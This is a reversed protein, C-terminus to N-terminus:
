MTRVYYRPFFLDRKLICCNKKLAVVLMDVKGTAFRSHLLMKTIQNTSLNYHNKTNNETFTLKWWLCEEESLLFSLDCHLDKQLKCVVVYSIKNVIFSNSREGTVIIARNVKKANM